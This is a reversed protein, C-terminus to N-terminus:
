TASPDIGSTAQCKAARAGHFPGARDPPSFGIAITVPPTARVTRVTRVIIQLEEPPTSPLRRQGERPDLNWTSWDYLLPRLVRPTQLHRADIRVLASM